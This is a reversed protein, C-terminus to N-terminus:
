VSRRPTRVGPCTIRKGSSQILANQVNPLTRAVTAIVGTKGTGTPMRILASGDSDTEIYHAVKKVAQKQHEWLPLKTWPTQNAAAM